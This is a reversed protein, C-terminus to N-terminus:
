VLLALAEEGTQGVRVGKGEAATSVAQIKAKRLDEVTNVGRVVAAAVGLKNATNIDLYGCMVFGKEASCVVLPAGPLPLVTGLVPRGNVQFNIQHM